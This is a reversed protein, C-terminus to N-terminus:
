ADHDVLRAAFSYANQYCIAVLKVPQDLPASDNGLLRTTVRVGEELDVVCVRYPAEFQFAAPVAHMTTWSYLKGKGSLEVWEIPENWDHPSIQKPPFTLRRSRTGRTTLFRGQALADWFTKTFESVRPPYPHLPDRVIIDLM